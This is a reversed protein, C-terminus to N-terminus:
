IKAISDSVERATSTMAEEAEPTLKGSKLVDLVDAQHKM